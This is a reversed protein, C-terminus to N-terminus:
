KRYISPHIMNFHTEDKALTESMGIFFYGGSELANYFRNVLAIRTQKDFYIMVNRCFIVHFKKKFPLQKEMLNFPRLIVENRIAEVVRYQGGERVFYKELWDSPVDRIRDDGYLAERARSLMLPSIDTALIKADWSSKSKGFFSDIVMAITYPEEGSSCGASWIRLDRDPLKNALSPLITESVFRYHQDERCFFTYNTTLRTILTDAEAGTTDSKVFRFYEGLTSFGKRRIVTWLRGEVLALKKGLDIGYKEKMYDVLQGFEERNIKEM